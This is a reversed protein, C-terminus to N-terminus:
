LATCVMLSLATRHEALNQMYRPGKTEVDDIFVATTLGHPPPPGELMKQMAPLLEPAPDEDLDVRFGSSELLSRLQDRTVLHNHSRETAWPVPLLLEGGGGDIVDFLAFRGGPKMVRRIERYLSPRDAINMAVHQTWVHDVAGDELDLSTIDGVRLEVLSDLGTRANLLRGVEVFQPTLDIGI